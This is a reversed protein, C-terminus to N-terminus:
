LGDEPASGALPLFITFTTSRAPVSEVEITGGHEQIISVCVSLGLGTGESKTTFFPDFIRAGIEEPIGPGTDSIEIRVRGDAEAATAGVSLVGGPAMAQISNLMINVFVQQLQNPNGLVVLETEPLRTALEVQAIRIENRLFLETERLLACLAVPERSTSKRTRTFALLHHVVERARDSQVLIDRVMELRDACEINPLDELLVEATLSINNLPNNIEHAIGATVKGVAALKASQVLQDQKIELAHLMRNLSDVLEYGEVSGRIMPGLPIATLEGQRIGAAAKRIFELPRVVWGILLASIVAGLLLVWVLIIVILTRYRQAAATVEQRTRGDREIIFGTLEHGSDRIAGELVLLEAGQLQNRALRAMLDAYAELRTEYDPVTEPPFGPTTRLRAVAARLRDLYDLASRLDAENGYLLYNKEYRRTELVEQNLEYLSEIIDIKDEVRTLTFLATLMALGGFFYILSLSIVIKGKMSRAGFLGGTVPPGADGAGPTAAAQPLEANM